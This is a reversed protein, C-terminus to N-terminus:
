LVNKEEQHIQRRSWWPRPSLQNFFRWLYLYGITLLLLLDRYLAAHLNHFAEAEPDDPGFCGCDIDLGLVIGYVLVASFVILMLTIATLAGRKEFLLGIAAIIEALILIVAVMGILMDPVLGYAGIITAFDAPSLAKTLGSWLFVGVMVLRCLHYLYRAPTSRFLLTATNAPKHVHSVM